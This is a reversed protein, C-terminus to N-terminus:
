QTFSLLGLGSPVQLYVNCRGKQTVETLGRPRTEGDGMGFGRHVSIGRFDRPFPPAQLYIYVRRALCGIQNNHMIQGIRFHM